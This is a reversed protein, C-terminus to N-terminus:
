ILNRQSIPEIQWILGIQWRKINMMKQNSKRLWSNLGCLYFM